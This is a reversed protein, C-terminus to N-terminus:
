LCCLSGLCAPTMFGPTFHELHPASLLFEFLLLFHLLCHTLLHSVPFPTLSPVPSPSPTHHLCSFNAPYGQAVASPSSPDEHMSITESPPPHYYHHSCFLTSIGCTEFWCKFVTLAPSTAGHNLTCIARGSSKPEIGLIYLPCSVVGQLELKLPVWSGRRSETPVWM